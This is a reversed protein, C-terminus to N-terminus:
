FIIIVSIFIVAIISKNTQYCTVSQMLLLCRRLSLKVNATACEVGVEIWIYAPCSAFFLGKTKREKM